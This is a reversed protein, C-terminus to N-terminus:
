EFSGRAIACRGGDCTAVWPPCAMETCAVDPCAGRGGPSDALVAAAHDRHVGVAEGGNCADCCQLEVAVCDEDATCAYPDTATPGEGANGPGSPPPTDKPCGALALALAALVISKM